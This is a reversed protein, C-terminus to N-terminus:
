VLERGLFATLRPFLRETLTGGVPKLREGRAMLCENYIIGTLRSNSIPFKKQFARLRNIVTETDGHNEAYRYAKGLEYIDTRVIDQYYRATKWRPREKNMHLIVTIQVAFSLIVPIWYRWDIVRLDRTEGVGAVFLSWIVMMPMLIGILSCWIDLRDFLYEGARAYRGAFDLYFEPDDLKPFKEKLSM